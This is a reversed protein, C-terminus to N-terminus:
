LSVALANGLAAELARRFLVSSRADPVLNDFGHYAGPLVLLETPVGAQVLRRAYEIDEEVFLDVSGVAIFTPPLGSLDMCRAPVAGTPVKASGAPVGLLSSWGFVNADAKWMYAGIWAPPHRTSGTRDDLMPYVLAQLRIPVEGRDRAAIALAAAHGGGASEGLVAIHARDVGLAAAHDHLWRLAAYNDELSGPFQTEPALRYDVTVIVCDLTRAIQQLKRVAELASGLIYGGGHIHLIAGRPAGGKKENIVYTRVAPRGARGPILQERYAPEPGPPVAYQKALQRMAPLTQATYVEKEIEPLLKLLAPRLEPDVASLPDPAGAARALSHSPLTGVIGAVALGSAFQRRTVSPLDNEFM